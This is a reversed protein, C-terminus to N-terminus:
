PIRAAISNKAAGAAVRAVTPVHLLMNTYIANALPYYCEGAKISRRLEGGSHHAV